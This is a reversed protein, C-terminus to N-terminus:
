LKGQIMKIEIGRYSFGEIMQMSMDTPLEELIKMYAEKSLHTKQVNLMKLKDLTAFTEKIKKDCKIQWLYKSKELDIM